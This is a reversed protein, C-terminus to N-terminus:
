WTPYWYVVGYIYGILFVEYFLPGILIFPFELRLFLLLLLGRLCLCLPKAGNFTRTYATTWPEIGTEYLLDFVRQYDSSKYPRIKFTIEHQDNM